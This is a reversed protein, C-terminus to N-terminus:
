PAVLAGGELATAIGAAPPTTPVAREASRATGRWASGSRSCPCVRRLSHGGIGSLFPEERSATEDFML